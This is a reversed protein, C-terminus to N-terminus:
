HSCKLHSICDNTRDQKHITSLQKRQQQSFILSRHFIAFGLSFFHYQKRKLLLLNTGANSNYVDFSTTYCSRFVHFSGATKKIFQNKQFHTLVRKAKNENIQAYFSIRNKNM